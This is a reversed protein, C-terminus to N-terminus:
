TWLSMLMCVYVCVCVTVGSVCECVCVTVGSVGECVCM